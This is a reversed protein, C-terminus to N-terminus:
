SEGLDKPEAIGKKDITRMAFWAEGDRKMKVSISSQDKKVTAIREWTKGKDWSLYLRVEKIRDRGRDVIFPIVFERKDSFFIRDQPPSDPETPEALFLYLWCAALLMLASWPLAERSVD